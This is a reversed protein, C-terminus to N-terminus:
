DTAEDTEKIAKTFKTNYEVQAEAGAITLVSNRTPAWNFEVPLQKRADEDEYLEKTMVTQWFYMLQVAFAASANNAIVLQPASVAAEGTCSHSTPDGSSDTLMDPYRVRPDLATGKWSATYFMASASNFENGCIVVPIEYKDAADLVKMRAVHNDPCAFVFDYEELEQARTLFDPIAEIFAAKYLDRLAVAKNKGIDESSFLQRDLNGEDFEDGDHLTIVSGNPVAKMLVPVLYSGTGGCGIVAIRHKDM